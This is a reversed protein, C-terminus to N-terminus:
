LAKGGEDFPLQSRTFVESQIFQNRAECRVIVARVSRKHCVQAAPARVKWDTIKTRSQRVIRPYSFGRERKAVTNLSFSM